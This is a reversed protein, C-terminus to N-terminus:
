EEEPGTVNVVASTSSGTGSPTTFVANVTNNPGHVTPPVNTFTAVIASDRRAAVSIEYVGESTEVVEGEVGRTLGLAYLYVAGAAEGRYPPRAEEDQSWLWFGFPGLSSFGVGSFVIQEAHHAGGQGASSHVMPQSPIGAPQAANALLNTNESQTPVSESGCSVFLFTVTLVFMLKLLSAFKMKKEGIRSFIDPSQVAAIWQMLFQVPM